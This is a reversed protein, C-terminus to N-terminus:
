KLRLEDILEQREEPSAYREKPIEKDQENSTKDSKNQPSTKSVKSNMGNYSKAVTDAIKNGTLDGTTEATKQIVKKSTKRVDTPSKKANDLLKQSCTGSLYKSINKGINKGINEAFSLLRYDKLKIQDKSQFSYHIM